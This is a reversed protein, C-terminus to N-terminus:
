GAAEISAGNTPGMFPFNKHNAQFWDQNASSVRGRFKETARIIGSCNSFYNVGMLESFYHEVAGDFGSAAKSTEEGLSHLGDVYKRIFFRGKAGSFLEFMSTGDPMSSINFIYLDGHGTLGGNKGFLGPNSLLTDEVFVIKNGMYIYQEVNFGLTQPIQNGDYMVNTALVSTGNGGGSMSVRLGLLREMCEYFAQHAIRDGLIVFLNDTSGLPSNEALLNMTTQLDVPDLGENPNYGMDITDKISTIFGDGSAPATIGSHPAFHSNTLQNQGATEFWQHAFNPGSTKMTSVNYRLSLENFMAFLRDAREEEEFEWYAGPTNANANKITPHVWNCKRQRLSDGTFRLTYRSKHSYFIEWWSRTSRMFGSTSGEGFLNGTELLVEDKDFSEEQFGSSEVDEVIFKGDYIYHDGTAGRRQNIIIVEVGDLGHGLGIKDNPNLKDGWINNDPNHQASFSVLTDTKVKDASTVPQGSAYTVGVVETMDDSPYFAGICVNGTAILPMVELGEYKVRYANDYLEGAVDAKKIKRGKKAGNNVRDTLFLISTFQSFRSFRNITAKHIANDKQQNVSLSLAETHIQPNYTEQQGQMLQGM